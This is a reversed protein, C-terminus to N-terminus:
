TAVLASIAGTSLSRPAEGESLGNTGNRSATPITEIASLPRITVPKWKEAVDSRNSARLGM